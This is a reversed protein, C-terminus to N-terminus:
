SILLLCSRVTKGATEEERKTSYTLEPVRVGKRTHSPHHHHANPVRTSAPTHIGDTDFRPM